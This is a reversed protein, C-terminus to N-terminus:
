SPRAPPLDRSGARAPPRRLAQPAQGINRRLMVSFASTSYGLQSAVVKVPTGQALRAVAHATQVLQRWQRFNMGLERHFLRLATKSTLGAARAYDNLSVHVSPDNIIQRCLSMLRPEVPMPIPSGSRPAARLEEVILASVLRERHSRPPGSDSSLTSVILERLLPSIEIVECDFAWGEIPQLYLSALVVDTLMRTTHRCNPPLWVARQPPVVWTGKETEVAMVGHSAYLLQPWAHVHGPTVHGPGYHRLVPSLSSIDSTQMDEQEAIRVPIDSATDVESGAVLPRHDKLIVRRALTANAAKRRRFVGGL